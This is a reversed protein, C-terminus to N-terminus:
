SPANTSAALAALCRFYDEQVEVTSRPHLFMSFAASSVIRCSKPNDEAIVVMMSLFKTIHNSTTVCDARM